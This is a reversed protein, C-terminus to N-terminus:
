TTTTKDAMLPSVLLSITREGFFDLSVGSGRLQVHHHGGTLLDGNAKAM